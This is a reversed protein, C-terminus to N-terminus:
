RRGFFSTLSKQSKRKKAKADPSSPAGGGKSPTEGESKRKNRGADVTPATDEEEENSADAVEVEVWENSTVLYGDKDEYTREVLKKVTRKTRKSTTPAADVFDEMAGADITGSAPMKRKKKPKTESTAKKKKQGQGNNEVNEDEAGDCPDVRDEQGGGGGGSEEPEEVFVPDVAGSGEEIDDVDGTFTNSIKKEAPRQVREKPGEKRPEQKSKKSRGFFSSSSKREMKTKKEAKPRVESHKVPAEERKRTTTSPRSTSSSSPVGSEKEPVPSSRSASAEAMAQGKQPNIAAAEFSIHAFRNCLFAAGNDEDSKQLRRGQQYDVGWLLSADTTMGDSGDEKPPTVAYVHVTSVSQFTKRVEEFKAKPVLLGQRVNNVVGSVARLVGLM